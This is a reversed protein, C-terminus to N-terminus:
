GRKQPGSLPDLSAYQSITSNRRRLWAGWCLCVPVARAGKTRAQMSREEGSDCSSDKRGQREQQHQQLQKQKPVPDRYLFLVQDHELDQASDRYCSCSLARLISDLHLTAKRAPAISQKNRQVKIVSQCLSQDQLQSDCISAWTQPAAM